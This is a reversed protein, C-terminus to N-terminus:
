CGKVACGSVTGKKVGEADGRSAMRKRYEKPPVGVHLKFFKRFTYQEPFNLEAAIEKISKSTSDLLTKAEAVTIMAIMASPTRGMRSKIIRTFHSPSLNAETAYYEVRRETKYHQHLSYIFRFTIDDMRDVKEPPVADNQMALHIFELVTEQVLLTIIHRLIMRKEEGATQELLTRKREIDEKRELFLAINDESLMCCAGHRMRWKVLIDALPHIVGYFVKTDAMIVAQSYCGDRSLEVVNNVPPVFCLVGRSMRYLQGGVIIESSGSTCLLMKGKGEFAKNNM